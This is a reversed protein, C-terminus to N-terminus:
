APEDKDDYDEMDGIGYVLFELPIRKFKNLYSWVKFLNGDTLQCDVGGSVWDFITTFPVGTAKVLDADKIKLEYMIEILQDQLCNPTEKRPKAEDTVPLQEEPVLKLQSEM